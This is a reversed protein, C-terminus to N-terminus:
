ERQLLTKAARSQEPTSYKRPRGGRHVVPREVDGRCARSCWVGPEGSRTWRVPGLIQGCADCAENVWCGHQEFIQKSQEASLRM